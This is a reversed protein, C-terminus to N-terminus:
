AAGPFKWRTANPRAVENLTRRLDELVPLITLALERARQRTLEGGPPCQELCGELRHALDVPLLPRFELLRGIHQECASHVAEEPPVTDSTLLQAAVFLQEAAYGLALVDDWKLPQAM